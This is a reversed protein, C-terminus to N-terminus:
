TIRRVLIAFRAHQLLADRVITRTSCNGQSRLVSHRITIILRRATVFVVNLIPRLFDNLVTLIVRTFENFPCARRLDDSIMAAILSMVCREGDQRIFNIMNDPILTYRTIRLLCTTRRLLIHRGVISTSAAAVYRITILYRFPM